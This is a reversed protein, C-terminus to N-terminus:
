FSGEGGVEVLNQQSPMSVKSSVPSEEPISNPSNVQSKPSNTQPPFSKKLASFGFKHRLAELPKLIDSEISNYIFNFLPNPRKPNENAWVKEMDLSIEPQQVTSQSGKELMIPKYLIYGLVEQPIIRTHSGRSYQLIGAKPSALKWLLLRGTEPEEIVVQCIPEGEQIPQGNVRLWKYIFINGPTFHLSALLNHLTLEYQFPYDDHVFNQFHNIPKTSQSRYYKKIFRKKDSSIIVILDIISLVLPIFTWCLVTYLFGLTYQRLYYRHGGVWGTFLTLLILRTRSKQYRM